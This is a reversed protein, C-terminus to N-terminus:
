GPHNSTPWDHPHAEDIKGQELQEQHEACYRTAPVAELRASPIREGCYFCRGYTGEELRGLAEEVLLLQRREQEREAFLEEKDWSDEARDVMDEAEDLSIEEEREDTDEYRELLRRREAELRERLREAQEESLPSGATRTTEPGAM